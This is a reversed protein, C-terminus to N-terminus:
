VHGRKRTALFYKEFALKAWHAEPGPILWAHKRPELLHDATMIIGTNGADLVCKADIAGPAMKVLPEGQIDAVINHAVIRAMEESLYGTKPVGCAVPTKEPPAVNAAVGAAYVNPYKKTQYTDEVEVFGSATVIEECERVVDVGLFSPALMAYKFPWKKGDIARVEGPVIEKVAVNTEGRINLHKFFYECLQRAKGFGGIGFHGLYPEATVYTLQVKDELKRKRLQHAMNFLFEYAAGFCSAGQVAGIVVPGPDTLFAEFADRAKFADTPSFISQTHGDRPGLGPIASYNLKPGTAILLYDYPREGHQDNLTHMVQQGKLNIKVAVSHVFNVGAKELVPAVPFTFDEIERLGFPVWILSPMFIFKDSASIVTVDIEKGLKEKLTIAATLGAFNSGLVVVRKGM